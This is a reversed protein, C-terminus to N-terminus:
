CKMIKKPIEDTQAGEAGTKEVFIMKTTKCEGVIELGLNWSSIEIFNWSFVIEKWESIEIWKVMLWNRGMNNANFPENSRKGCVNERFNGFNEEATKKQCRMDKPVMHNTENRFDLIKKANKKIKIDLEGSTDTKDLIEENPYGYGRWRLM